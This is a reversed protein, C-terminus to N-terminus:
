EAVSVENDDEIKEGAVPVGCACEFHTSNFRQRAQRGVADSFVIVIVAEDGTDDVGESDGGADDGDDDEGEDDRTSGEEDRDERGEEDNDIEM